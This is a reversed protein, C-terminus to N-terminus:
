DEQVSDQQGFWKDLKKQIQPLPLGLKGLNELCSTGERYVILALPILVVSYPLGLCYGIVQCVLVALGYIILKWLSDTIRISKFNGRRVAVVGGTIADLLLLIGAAPLLRHLIEPAGQWWAVLAAFAALILGWGPNVLKHLYNM